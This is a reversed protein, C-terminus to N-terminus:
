RNETYPEAIEVDEWHPEGHIVLDNRQMGLIYRDVFKGDKCIDRYLYGEVHFGRKLDLGLSQNGVEIFFRM